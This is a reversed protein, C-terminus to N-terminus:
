ANYIDEDVVRQGEQEVEENLQVLHWFSQTDWVRNVGDLCHNGNHTWYFAGCSNDMVTAYGPPHYGSDRGDTNWVLRGSYFQRFSPRLGGLCVEYSRLGQCKRFGQVLLRYLCYRLTCGGENERPIVWCDVECKADKIKSKYDARFQLMLLTSGDFCFIQPCEYKDAYGRLEQGLRQQTVSKLTGMQWERANITNRKWEGAAVPLRMTNNEQTVSYLVDVTEDVRVEALAPAEAIQLLNPYKAWASIVINSIEHHFWNGADADSALRWSRRNPPYALESLRLEDDYQLPQFSDFKATVCGSVLVCTQVLLNTITPYRDQWKKRSDTYYGTDQVPNSPHEDLLSGITTSM